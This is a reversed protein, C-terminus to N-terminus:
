KGKFILCIYNIKYRFKINILREVLLKIHMDFM